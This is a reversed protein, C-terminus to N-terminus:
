LPSGFSFSHLLKPAAQSPIHHITYPKTDFLGTHVQTETRAKTKLVM